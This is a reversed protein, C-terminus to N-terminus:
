ALDHWATPDTAQGDSLFEDQREAQNQDQQSAAEARDEEIEGAHVAVDFTVLADRDGADDCGELDELVDAVHLGVHVVQQFVWM